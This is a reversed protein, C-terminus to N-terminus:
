AEPESVRLHNGEVDVWCFGDEEAALRSLYFVTPESIHQNNLFPETYQIAGFEAQDIHHEQGVHNNWDVGETLFGKDGYHHRAAARLVTLGNLEFVRRTSTDPRLRPSKLGHMWGHNAGGAHGAGLRAVTDLEVCAEFWALAAEANEWLYSTDWSDEMYLLGQTEVGNRDECIGFRDLGPLCVDFAFDLWAPEAYVHAARRLVRFATSYAVNEHEDYTDHNISGFIGGRDLFVKLKRRVVEGYDGTGRAQLDTLLGIVFLSDASGQWLPDDGGDPSATVVRGEPTVRRPYWGNPTDPLSRMLWDAAWVAASVLEGVLPHGEPLEDAWALFQSGVKAMSGPCFWDHNHKYNLCFENSPIHRYGIILGNHRSVFGGFLVHDMIDLAARSWAARGFLRGARYIELAGGAANAAWGPGELDGFDHWSM